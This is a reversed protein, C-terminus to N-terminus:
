RIFVVRQASVRDNARVVVFYTGAPVPQGAADRGDWRLTHEGAALATDLVDRVRRGSVDHVAVQVQAGAALAFSIDSGTRSPNPSIRLTGDAAHGPPVDALSVSVCSDVTAWILPSGPLLLACMDAMNAPYANWAACLNCSSTTVLRPRTSADNCAPNTGTFKIQLFAHRTVPCPHGLTLKFENIGSTSPYVMGPWPGGIIILPLPPACATDTAPAVVAVEVPLACWTRFELAIRVASVWVGPKGSCASCTAPDIALFYSDDPPQLYDILYSRPGPFGLTCLVPSTPLQAPKPSDAAPAPVTTPVPKRSSPAAIACTAMMVCASLALPM